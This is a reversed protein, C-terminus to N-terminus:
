LLLNKVAIPLAFFAFAKFAYAEYRAVKAGGM